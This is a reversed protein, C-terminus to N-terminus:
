LKERRESVETVKKCEQAWQGESECFVCLPDETHRDKRGSKSQNCTVHLAAASPIYNPHDLTDGRIKQTPTGPKSRQREQRKVHVIWRQCIESPFAHLIKPILLREYGNVDEGLGSTSTRQALM